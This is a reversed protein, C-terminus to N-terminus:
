KKRLGFDKIVPRLFFLVKNIKIAIGYGSPTIEKYYLQEETM